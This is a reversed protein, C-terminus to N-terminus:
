KEANNNVNNGSVYTVVANEFTENGAGIKIRRFSSVSGNYNIIKLMDCNYFAMTKIEEVDSSIFLSNQDKGQPYCIIKKMEKDYLVGDVDAYISNKSDVTINELEPCNCFAYDGIQEIESPIYANVIETGYFAYAGIFKLNESLEVCKVFKSNKFAYDGIGVVKEGYQSAEPLIIFSDRCSGIDSVYCTGNGLSKFELGKSPVIVPEPPETEAPETEEPADTDSPQQTEATEPVAADSPKAMAPVDKEGLNRAIIIGGLVLCITALFIIPILKLIKQKTM